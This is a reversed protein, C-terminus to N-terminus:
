AEPDTNLVAIKNMWTTLTDVDAQTQTGTITIMNKKVVMTFKSGSAPITGHLSMTWNRKDLNEASAAAEVDDILFSHIKEGIRNYNATNKAGFDISFEIGGLVLAYDYSSSYAEADVYKGDFETTQDWQFKDKVDVYDDFDEIAGFKRVVIQKGAVAFSPTINPTCRLTM